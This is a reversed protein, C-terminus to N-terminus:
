NIPITYTPSKAVPDDIYRRLQGSLYYPLHLLDFDKGERSRAKERAIKGSYLRIAFRNEDSQDIFSHLSRLTGSKGAKVEIPILQRGHPIVYDIEANSQAKERVWFLM